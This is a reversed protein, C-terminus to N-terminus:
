FEESQFMSIISNVDRVIRDCQNYCEYASMGLENILRDLKNVVLIPRLKEDWVQRLVAYTQICVGECADVIVLAGDSLRVSTSVESCFDVHGPSDILNIIYSTGESSVDGTDSKVDNNPSDKGCKQNKESDNRSRGTKFLLGISSAKM